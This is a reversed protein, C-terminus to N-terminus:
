RGCRSLCLRWVASSLCAVAAASTTRGRIGHVLGLAVRRLGCPVWHCAFVACSVEGMFSGLKTAERVFAAQDTPPLGLFWASVINGISDVPLEVADDDDDGDADGGAKGESAAGSAAASSTDAAGPTYPVNAPWIVCTNQM